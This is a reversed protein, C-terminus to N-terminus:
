LLRVAKKLDNELKRIESKYKSLCELLESQIRIVENSTNNLYVGMKICNNTYIVLQNLNASLHNIDSRLKVILDYKQEIYELKKIHRKSNFHWCADLIYSSLSPYDKSLSKLKDLEDSSVRLKLFKNKLENNNKM